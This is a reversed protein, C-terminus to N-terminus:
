PRRILIVADGDLDARTLGVDRLLHDSLPAMARRQRMRQLAMVFRMALDGVAQRTRRGLDRRSAVAVSQESM